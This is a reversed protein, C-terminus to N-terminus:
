TAADTEEKKTGPNFDLRWTPSGTSWNCYEIIAVLELKPDEYYARLFAEVPKKDGRYLSNSKLLHCCEEWKERDWSIMRDTYASASAAKENVYLIIPDYAYPYTAKTRRPTCLPGVNRKEYFERELLDAISWWPEQNIYTVKSEATVHCNKISLTLFTTRVDSPIM